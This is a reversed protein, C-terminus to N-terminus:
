PIRRLMLRLCYFLFRTQHKYHRVYKLYMENYTRSFNKQYTRQGAAKGETVRMARKHPCSFPTADPTYLLFGQEIGQSM